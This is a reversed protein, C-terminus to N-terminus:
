ARENTDKWEAEILDAITAFSEGKDNVAAIDVNKCAIFPVRAHEGDENYFHINNNELWDAAPVEDGTALEYNDYTFGDPEVIDILVGLCCYGRAGGGYGWMLNEVTQAYEGSRLAAVWKDKIAEPM